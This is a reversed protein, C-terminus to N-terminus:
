LGETRFIPEADTGGPQSSAPVVLFDAKVKYGRVVAYRPGLVDPVLIALDTTLEGTKNTEVVVSGTSVSWSINVVKHRPFGHGTVTVITGPPGVDPSIQLVPATHVSPRVIRYSNSGVPTPEASTWLYLRYSGSAPNRVGVLLVRLTDASKATFGSSLDITVTSGATHCSLAPTSTHRALDAVICEKASLSTGRAAHVTIHWNGATLGPLAAFTQFVITYNSRAAAVHDSLTVNVPSVNRTKPIYTFGIGARAPSEATPKGHHCSFGLVVDVTGSGPPSSAVLRTGNSSVSSIHGRARGFSVQCASTLNSGEIIVATGGTTPGSHPSVATVTPPSIPIYSFNNAPGTTTEATPISNNCSTGVALGVTGSGPPSVAVVQTGSSSVSSIHALTPGFKVQCASGLNTGDIAVTTGGPAPGSRPSISTITPAPPVIQYSNSSVPTPEASTWVSLAYAAPTPNTVGVLVMELMDKPNASLGSPVSITLTDDGSAMSTTITTTSTETPTTTTEPPTTTTEASQPGTKAITTTTTTTGTSTLPSRTNRKANTGARGLATITTANIEMVTGASAHCSSAILKTHRTLDALACGSPLGTGSPFRVTINSTGSALIAFTQLSITYNSHEGAFHDNLVVKVPSITTVGVPIYGFRDPASTSSQNNPNGNQCSTGVVVAVTGSGPPSIAVVQTGNPAVSSIQAPTPGFKVQCASALNAGRITVTTGGAAPGSRPSIGTVMPPPSIYTFQDAPGASSKNTPNSNQCSTGVVVDVTGSGPPSVALVKTGNPSVSSIHAAASGFKVQCASALNSGDITVPTGGGAPGSSPSIGTVTPLSPKIYTFRDAPGTATEASPQGNQCSTGVVVDVTG